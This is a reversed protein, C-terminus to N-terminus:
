LEREIIDALCPSFFRRRPHMKEGQQFVFWGGPLISHEGPPHYQM